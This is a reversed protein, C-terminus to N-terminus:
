STSGSDQERAARNANWTRMRQPYGVLNIDYVPVGLRRALSAGARPDNVPRRTWEGTQAILLLTTPTITTAPEVYAEVGRRSATFQELHAAAADVDAKAAAPTGAGSGRRLRPLRSRSFLGM